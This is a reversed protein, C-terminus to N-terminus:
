HSFMKYHILFLPINRKVQINIYTGDVVVIATDPEDVGMLQQAINSTHQHIIEHRAIHNFGLNNPVFESMLATRVSELSRSVTRKNPLQFLVALLANSLGLRLKCLFIALATRISRNSSNRIDYKSIHWVLDDFQDKTLSTFVKYEEDSLSQPRDFDFHRQQEFLM